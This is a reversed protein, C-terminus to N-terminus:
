KGICFSQFVKNLIDESTIKGTFEELLNLIKKGYYAILEEESREEMEKIAQYIREVLVKQRLNSIISYEKIEGFYEQIKQRIFSKLKERERKDILIAKRSSINNKKMIEEKEKGENLDYKSIVGIIKKRTRLIKEEEAKFKENAATIWILMSSNEVIEWTKKIGIKEIREGQSKVGATDIFTIEYDDITVNESVYDRTTGEKSDVIARSYGVLLNLFSSKGANPPGVIAIRLGQAIVENKKWKELEYKVKNHLDSLLERYESKYDGVVREDEQNFEIEYETRIIINEVMKQWLKIKKWYNGFYNELAIEQEAKTRSVIIQNISEAQILSTKNNEFARRTFEGRGAYRMGTSVLAELIREVVIKGGHCIIEIMNEGTFSRPEYYKIITVEDIIRYKNKETFKYLSLQQSNKKDFKNKEKVLARVKNIAEKGTARIIALAGIGQPSALAVITESM